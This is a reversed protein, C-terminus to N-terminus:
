SGRALMWMAGEASGHERRGEREVEAVEVGRCGNGEGGTAARKWERMGQM